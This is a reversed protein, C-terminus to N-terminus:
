KAGNRKGGRRKKPADPPPADTTKEQPQEGGGYISRFRSRFEEDANARAAYRRREAERENRKCAQVLLDM